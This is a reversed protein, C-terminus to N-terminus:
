SSEMGTQSPSRPCTVSGLQAEIGAEEEPLTLLVPSWSVQGYVSLWTIDLKNARYFVSAELAWSTMWSALTKLLNGEM